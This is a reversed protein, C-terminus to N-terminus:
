GKQFIALVGFKSSTDDLHCYGTSKMWRISLNSSPKCKRLWIFNKRNSKKLFFLSYIETSINWLTFDHNSLTPDKMIKLRSFYKTKVNKWRKNYCVFIQMLLFTNYDSHRFTEKKLDKFINGSNKLM